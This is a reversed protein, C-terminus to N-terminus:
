ILYSNAIALIHQAGEKPMLKKLRAAEENQEKGIAHRMLILLAAARRENADKGDAVASLASEAQPNGKKEMDV